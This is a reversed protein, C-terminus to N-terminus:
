FTGGLRIIDDAIRSAGQGDVLQRLLVTRAKRLSSSACLEVAKETLRRVCAKRNKRVDGCYDMLGRADFAKVNELQNDAMACSVAPVGCACLEYLTSGGATVALDCDTMIRAMDAVNRHLHVNEWHPEILEDEGTYVGLVMHLALSKLNDNERLSHLLARGMGYPDSGGLTILLARPPDRWVPTIKQFEERLPAYAPGLLLRAGTGHYRKKYEQKSAFLNYNVVVDAPCPFRNLDDLYVTKTMSRLARLYAPTVQYSDIVMCDPQTAAVAKQLSPLESEMANWESYLCISPFGRDRAFSAGTEEATLFMVEGGMRRVGQAIAMCRMIHGTAVSANADVRFAIM